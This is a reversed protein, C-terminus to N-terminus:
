LKSGVVGVFKAVAVFSVCSHGNKDEIRSPHRFFCIFELTM